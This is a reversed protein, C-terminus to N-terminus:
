NDFIFYVRLSHHDKVEVDVIINIRLLLIFDYIKRKYDFLLLRFILM